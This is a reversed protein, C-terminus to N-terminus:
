RARYARVKGEDPFPVLILDDKPDKQFVYAPRGPESSFDLFTESKKGAPHRLLRKGDVTFWAGDSGRELWRCTTECLTEGGKAGVMQLRRGGALVHLDDLHQYVGTAGAHAPEVKGESVLGKEGVAVPKGGRVVTVDTFPANEDFIKAVSLSRGKESFSLLRGGVLWFLQDGYARLPGPVGKAKAVADEGPKGSLSFRLLEAKGDTKEVAILLSAKGADFFAARPKGDVSTDWRQVWPAAQATLSAVLSVILGFLIM